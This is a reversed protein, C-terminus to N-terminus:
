LEEFPELFLTFKNSGLSSSILARDPDSRELAISVVEPVVALAGNTNIM